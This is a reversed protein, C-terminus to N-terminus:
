SWIYKGLLYLIVWTSKNAKRHYKSNGRNCVCDKELLAVKLGQKSLLYATTIGTIGAGIICVDANINKQLGDFKLNGITTELWMSNM